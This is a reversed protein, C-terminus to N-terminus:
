PWKCLIRPSSEKQWTNAKALLPPSEQCICPTQAPNVKCISRECELVWLPGPLHMGSCHYKKKGRKWKQKHIGEPMRPYTFFRNLHLLTLIVPFSASFLFFCFTRFTLSNYVPKQKGDLFTELFTTHTCISLCDRLIPPSVRLSCM